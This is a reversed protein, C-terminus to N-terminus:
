MFYSISFIQDNLFYAKSLLMNLETMLEQNCWYLAKGEYSNSKFIPKVELNNITLEELERVKYVLLWNIIYLRSILSAFFKENGIWEDIGQFMLNPFYSQIFYILENYEDILDSNLYTNSTM